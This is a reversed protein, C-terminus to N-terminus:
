LSYLSLTIFLLIIFHFKFILNQTILLDFSQENRLVSTILKTMVLSRILPLESNSKILNLSLVNLFHNNTVDKPGIIGRLDQIV